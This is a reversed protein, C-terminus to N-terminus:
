VLYAISMFNPLLSLSKYIHKSSKTTARILAPRLKAGSLGAFPLNNACNRVEQDIDKKSTMWGTYTKM